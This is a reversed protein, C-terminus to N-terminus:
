LKMLKFEVFVAAVFFLVPGWGALFPNIYGNQGISTCMSILWWFAFAIVLSM